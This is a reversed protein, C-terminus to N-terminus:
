TPNPTHKHGIHNNTLRATVNGSVRQSVVQNFWATDCRPYLPPPPDVFPAIAEEAATAAHAVLAAAGEEEDAARAAHADAADASTQGGGLIGQQALPNEIEFSPM